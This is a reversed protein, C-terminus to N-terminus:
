FDQVGTEGKLERGKGERGGDESGSGVLFGEEERDFWEEERDREEGRVDDLGEDRDVIDYDFDQDDGRVFRASMTEIWYQDAEDRTLTTFDNRPVPLPTLTPAPAPTSTSLDGNSTEDGNVNGVGNTSISGGNSNRGVQEHVVDAESVDEDEDSVGGNVPPASSRSRAKVEDLKAESRLM